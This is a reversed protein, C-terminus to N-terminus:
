LPPGSGTIGDAELAAYDHDTIGLLRAFVERSHEGHLPAARVVEPPVGPLRVPTTPVVFRGAEPHEVETLVGRAWLHEDRLVDSSKAVRAALLGAGALATEIDAADRDRTWAAILADLADENAKRATETAFRPGRPWEPHGALAAIAVFDADSEAAIAVWEDDGRCPYINHPVHVPHRNGMRRRVEGTASYQVIADALYTSCVVQMSLDIHQGEGTRNRHYLAMLVAAAGFYGSIPDPFMMGCNLPPGGPYGLQSSMGSVPEITGGIGPYYAYPGTAGFASMSLLIVGPRLERLREYGIGLNTMVRPSFNEVVIDSQAILRCVLDIGEPRGLDITVGEKHLNVSNFLASVNWGHTASELQRLSTPIPAQYGGRWVDPRSRSEVQIVEAGMLALQETALTGAWAQSLALVRIGALPPEVHAGTM